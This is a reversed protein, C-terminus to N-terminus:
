EMRSKVQKPEHGARKLQVDILFYGSCPGSLMEAKEGEPSTEHGTPVLGPAGNGYKSALTRNVSGKLGLMRLGVVEKFALDFPYDDSTGALTYLPFFELSKIGDDGIGFSVVFFIKFPQCM